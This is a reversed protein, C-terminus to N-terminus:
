SRSCGGRWHRCMGNLRSGTPSSRKSVRWCRPSRCVWAWYSCCAPCSTASTTVTLSARVPGSCPIPPWGGHPLVLRHSVPVALGAQDLRSRVASYQLRAQAGVDKDRGGYAKFLGTTRFDVDGAKVEILLVEGAQNLVVIDVEGHQARDDSVRAWDVSHFLTFADPLGRELTELLDLEAHDGAALAARPPLSPCLRAM